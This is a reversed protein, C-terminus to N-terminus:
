DAKLTILPDVGAARSAPIWCAVGAVSTLLLAVVLYTMPDLPSVDFLLSVLIESVTAAVGMGIVVGIVTLTMGQRLVLSLVNERTAGLAARVGIERMREAVSGALVGYLGVGALTLAFFAFAVLVVLVFRRQSESETVISAMSQTRVIPQNKDVSWIASRIAPILSLAEQDAQVVIWRVRDAWHWQQSTLYVAAVQDTGLSTQKVDDVVGVITYPRLEPDGVRIRNGVPDRGQFLRGALAKSVVAVRPAGPLDSAELGRGAALGIGMAEFYGPAVAYRFVPVNESEEQTGNDVAAGYVDAEGSLPLQSTLVAAGVGPVNQVAELAQNFFRHTAADGPELGTASVQMVVLRSAEFGRPVSFLRQTSRVLLGAGILLVMALAVETVVLARRASRNRGVSGRGIERGIEHLNGGSKALAPAVGFVIGVLTTLGLAFSLAVADLGVSDLGPLSPPSAAVLGALAIWAVVIGFAGGLGALLLSETLLHQMRRTRGAGLAERMALEGRRQAARALLLITVNVCAILLLLGVAGLLVVMTPRVGSMAVDRLRGVSFGHALSAWPPRPFEQLPFTAIGDFMRRAEDIGVEPRLRGVMGLHNGWERTDFSPPLPDYQLLSWIQTTPATVNEFASPMVGIVTFLRSDLRVTLGVIDPDAGFRRRWLGDSLVVLDAGGPRDPSVDFGRGVAPEVGLVDFYGASVRQGALREPDDASTMTPQWPKFVSLTEFALDRASLEQYTGFAMQIPSGDDGRNSIALVRDADPYALPEFLVPRVASFIATAAGIGLGLTMVVVITFGPSRGLRRVTLRIDGWLTDVTSEWGYSRVAERAPLEDGYKLRVARRAEEPTSGSSVLDAEAARHYHNVEEALERDTEERNVLSRLGHTIQRWHWM